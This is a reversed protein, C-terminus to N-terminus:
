LPQERWSRRPQALLGQVQEDVLQATLAWQPYVWALGESLELRLRPKGLSAALQEASVSHLPQLSLSSVPLEAWQVPWEGTLAQEADAAMGALVPQLREAWSASWQLEAQLRWGAQEARWLLRAQPQGAQLWLQGAQVEQLTALRLRADALPDLLRVQWDQLEALPQAARGLWIALTFIASALLAYFLLHQVRLAQRWM